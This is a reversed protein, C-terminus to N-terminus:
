NFKEVIVFLPLSFHLVVRSTTRISLGFEPLFNEKWFQTPKAWVMGLKRASDATHSHLVIADCSVCQM